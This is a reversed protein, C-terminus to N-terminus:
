KGHSYQMIDRIMETCHQQFVTKAIDEAENLDDIESNLSILPASM